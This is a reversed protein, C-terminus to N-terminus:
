SGFLMQYSVSAWHSPNRSTRGAFTGLASSINLYQFLPTSCSSCYTDRGGCNSKHRAKQQKRTAALPLEGLECASGARQLRKFCDLGM